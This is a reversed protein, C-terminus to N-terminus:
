LVRASRRAERKMRQMCIPEHSIAYLEAQAAGSSCLLHPISLLLIARYLLSAMKTYIANEIAEEASAATRAPTSRWTGQMSRARAAKRAARAPQYAENQGSVCHRVQKGRKERGRARCAEAERSENGRVAAPQPRVRRAEVAQRRVHAV